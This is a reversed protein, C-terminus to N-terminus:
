SFKTEREQRAAYGLAITLLWSLLVLGASVFLCSVLGGFQYAVGSLFTGLLRGAANAMYYFGVNLAVDSSRSFALILYSHVSSNVAFFFGFTFLGCILTWAPNINLHILAGIAITVIALGFLWLQSSHVESTRGDSSKKVISPALAQVFGYGIVWLALFAGVQTFSWHLVDYLFVPLGVVFWVDRSGFLFLRAASLLNIARSQSFVQSLKVKKTARGLQRPLFLQVAILVAVLVAAMIWLGHTFGFSSLLFGGVFFGLGKFANKSGTLVAVWKFLSSHGQDPVVLKLASKASMKSLDKAIGSLGQTGLVYIVSVVAPWTPDLASLTLLALVQLALGTTLTLTLGFRTAIWGGLANTAIGMVEYLLFLISLQLPSYGLKNFYLLVLMRLAGDTVEFTWYAGTVVAYNRAGVM